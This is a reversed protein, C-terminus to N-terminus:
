KIIKDKMKTYRKYKKTKTKTKYHIANKPCFNYCRTCFLCNNSFSVKRKEKKITINKTPCVEACLGCFDCSEKDWYWSKKNKKTQSKLLLPNFLNFLLNNKKYESRGSLLLDIDEKIKQKTTEIMKNIEDDTNVEKNFLFNVNSPLNYYFNSIVLYNKKELIKKLFDFNTKTRSVTSFLIIPKDKVEPLKKIFDIVLKPANCVYTPFGIILFDYKAQSSVVDINELNYIDLSVNHSNYNKLIETAVFFTNGTGSFVYLAGKGSVFQKKQITM